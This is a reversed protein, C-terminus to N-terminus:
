RSKMSAWINLAIVYLSFYGIAMVISERVFYAGGNDVSNLMLSTSHFDPPRFLISFVFVILLGLVKKSTTTIAGTQISHSSRYLSTIIFYIGLVGVVAHHILLVEWYNLGKESAVAGSEIITRPALVDDFVQLGYFLGPSWSSYYVDPVNMVYRYIIFTFFGVLAISLFNWRYRRALDDCNLRLQIPDHATQQALPKQM